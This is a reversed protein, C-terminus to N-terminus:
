RRDPEKLGRREFISVSTIRIRQVLLMEDNPHQISHLLTGRPLACRYDDRIVIRIAPIIM